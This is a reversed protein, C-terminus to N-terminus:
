AKNKYYHEIIIKTTDKMYQCIKWSYFFRTSAHEYDDIKLKPYYITELGYKLCQEAVFIEEGFLFSIHNLSGGKRFYNKNFIMFSGHAAYIKLTEKALHNKRRFYRIIIKKFYSVLLYFNHILCLQYILKLFLMKQVTYRSIIKPNYDTGWKMSVISPAIVGTNEKVPINKLITFFDPDSVVVDVNSIIIWDPLPFKELYIQLGLAAGHFYGLNEMSKIHWFQNPNLQKLKENFEATPKLNSNDIVVLFVDSDKEINLTDIFRITENFTNFNVALVLINTTKNNMNM